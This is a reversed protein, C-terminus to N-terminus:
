EEREVLRGLVLGLQFRTQVQYHDMLDRIVYRVSRSSLQLRQAVMDDTDGQALAALVARERDSLERPPRWGPSPSVAVEWHRLFFSALEGVVAPSSIEWVGGHFNRSPDIPFFAIRRDIVTLKVPQAPLERYELGYAYLENTYAESEDGDGAPVGLSLTRAGNRLASRSVSVGAKASARTFATEPNMALFEAHAGVVLDEYRRRALGVDTMPSAGLQGDLTVGAIDIISLQRQLARHAAALRARREQLGVLFTELRRAAWMRQRPGRSVVTVAAAEELEGLAAEAQRASLDLARALAPLTQQGFLFLCRYVLDAHVTLGYRSLQPLVQQEVRM